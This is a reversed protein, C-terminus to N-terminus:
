TFPRSYDHKRREEPSLFLRAARTLDGVFPGPDRVSFLADTKPGRISRWWGVPTLQGRKWSHLASQVDRRMHIWRADGYSQQRNRPLPLDLTDRYMTALLEVGGAEAIASRGTPRGINPEVILHRGDREDRKMELYALGRFGVARFLRIAEELVVDNRCEEGLCSEGTDPPWQRIKRAIFTALPQSEADFYANCSYLDTVPGPIWEQAILVHSLSGLRNYADLLARRDDLVYAKLKSHEQWGPVASNPPKLVCPFRLEAAASEADDDTRLFRTLPIPLNHEQAFTYFRVKDMLMEVVDVSPLVVHYSDELRERHRSVAAVHADTAPYLVAKEELTRGLAELTRITEEDGARATVIRECVNTRCCYHDRDTAVGIVPVGRDALIRATQIGNIHDLGVVVARPIRGPARRAKGVISPRAM